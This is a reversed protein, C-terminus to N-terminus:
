PTVTQQQLRFIVHTTLFRDAIERKVGGWLSGWSLRVPPNVPKLGAQEAMEVLTKRTFCNIHELPHIAQLEPSWGSRKLRKAIGRGDPVRIYVLGGAALRACLARLTAVPDSLHEFVQNAYICEFRAGPPPLEGIVNVGMAQAHRRRDAALEYGSVDVGHAQAMRSWYGWGMGYELVRMQAPVGPMLAILAQIQGAYQRFLKARANQKKRLSGASDIWDRYLAQMGDQDLVRDQYLFDCRSCGLVRYSAGALADPPVRGQYFSQVFTSM